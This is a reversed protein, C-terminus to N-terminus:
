HEATAVKFRKIKSCSTSCKMRCQAGFNHLQGQQM